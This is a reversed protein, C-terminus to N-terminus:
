RIQLHFGCEDVFYFPKGQHQMLEVIFQQRKEKTYFSNWDVPIKLVNKWTIDMQHLKSEITQQSVEVGHEQQLQEVLEKLTKTSDRDLESVIWLLHEETVTSPNGRKKPRSPGELELQQQEKHIRSISSKSVRFAKQMETWSMNGERLASVILVRTSDPIREYKKRQKAKEKPPPDTKKHYNVLVKEQMEMLNKKHYLSQMEKQLELLRNTTEEKSRQLNEMIDPSNEVIPNNLFMLDMREEM